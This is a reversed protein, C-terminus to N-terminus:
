NLISLKRIDWLALYKNREKRKLGDYSEIFIELPQPLFFPAKTLNLPRWMGSVIRENVENDHFTTTLLYNSKSRIINKISKQVDDNSLHVLCDRCFILDYRQILDSTIDSQFFSIGKKEFKKNKKIIQRVIDAGFYRCKKFNILKMWNFDGCPIDLLSKIKYKKIVNEIIKRTKTTEKITSGDGSFSELNGWKNRNYFKTFIKENSYGILQLAKSSKLTFIKLKIILNWLWPFRKFQNKVYNFLM